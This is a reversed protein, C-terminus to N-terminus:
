EHTGGVKDIVKWYGSTDSGIREIREQKKLTGLDRQITKASVRLEASLRERTIAGDKKLLDLLKRHRLFRKNDPVNEPDSEPVNDPVNMPDDIPDDISVNEPVNTGNRGNVVGNAYKELDTGYNLNYLTTRFTTEDSYFKPQLEKGEYGQLIKKLGTGRREAYDIRQFVDALIPNRRTSAVSKLDLEQIPKNDYMGGPSTIEIRDDYIAIHVETGPLVYSRHIIANTLAERLAEKPYDPYNDRTMGEVNWMVRNHKGMFDVGNQVLMLVNASFEADDIADILGAGMTLGSWRTCFLRSNYVPCYDAFLAGARTLVGDSKLLGFSILDDPLSLTDGTHRKYASNLLTFSHDAYKYESDMVDFTRHSGKLILETLIRDTAKVSENGSRYYATRNDGSKVYYPTSTGSKIFLRLIEANEVLMPELTYLLSPEIRAVIFESIKDATYQADSLGIAVGDDSVGFYLSGGFGNAFASVSKLWSTPNKEELMIKFDHETAEAILIEKLTKM